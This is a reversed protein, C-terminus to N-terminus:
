HPVSDFMKMMAFHSVGPAPHWGTCFKLTSYPLYIHAIHVVIVDHCSFYALNEPVNKDTFNSIVLGNWPSRRTTVQVDRLDNWKWFTESIYEFGLWADYTSSKAFIAFFLFDNVIKAFSTWQVVSFSLTRFFLPELFSQSIVM